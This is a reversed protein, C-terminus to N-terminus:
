IAVFQNRSIKANKNTHTHTRNGYSKNRLRSNTYFSFPFHPTPTIKFRPFPFVSITMTTTTAVDDIRLVHKFTIRDSSSLEIVHLQHDQQGPRQEVSVMRCLRRDARALRGGCRLQEHQRRHSVCLRAASEVHGQHHIAQPKGAFFLSYIFSSPSLKLFLLNLTSFIYFVLYM